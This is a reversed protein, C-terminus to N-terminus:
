LGMERLFKMYVSGEPIYVPNVRLWPLFTDHEKCARKLCELAMEEEGRFTHIMFFSTAPVYESESRKKLSDYLREADDKKGTLHYGCILAATAFPNEDSLDVAKEVEAVAEKIMGKAYFVNGLMLRAYYYNPNIALTMNYEEIAKDLNGCYAYALAVETNIYSSLPDLEQARKAEYLAENHRGTGTLLFSYYIHILSSNPNIKLAYKFNQEAKEWNWYYFTNVYGIISYAEALTSDIKLAKNAYENAKPYAEDPPVNGFTTSVNSIAALGIYVLAYDPDKKLAQEFYEVAKKYGEATLAQWCYTGQLYLNYAEINGTHHKAIIAKKEGLLKIKLNDLISLSIEDQVAFVDKMKRDYRESWIHSGDATKILQATIRLRNGDKRISGELLTEVNLKRGIERIDVQKNKFAFASTRAIVKFNEIHVLANIIEETVGDCFYEQDKEPSLDV